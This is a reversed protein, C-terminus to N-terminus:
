KSGLKIDPNKACSDLYQYGQEDYIRQHKVEVWLQNRFQYSIGDHEEM